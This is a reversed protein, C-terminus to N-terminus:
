EVNISGNMLKPLLIDRSEKLKQNQLRLNDAQTVNIEVLDNYNKISEKSPLVVNINNMAANTLQPQASGSCYGKLNITKLFNLTYSIKLYSYNMKPEVIFSNNTVFAREYTRHIDGSGNGRSTILVVKDDSNYQEYYGMKGSAGYVPYVGKEKILTQPLNKGYKIHYLESLYITSWGVPLGTKEDLQLKEGNVRFKLFWEDYTRQASEELLNIRKQNNEILNDYSSLIDAIRRQIPLSPLNFKYDRIAKLGLNKITAGTAFAIAYKQFDEHELIYRIYTKDVDDKINLYCASKGLAVKEGNYFGLNGITGNIALLITRENLDKKIKNYEDRTIKKTDKKLIIKGDSLNNGNIFYYEGNEDYKPTGHLGDGIRNSVENLTIIKRLDKM